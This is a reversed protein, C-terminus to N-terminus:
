KKIVTAVRRQFTQTNYLVRAPSASMAPCFRVFSLGRCSDFLM